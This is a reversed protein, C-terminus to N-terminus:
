NLTTGGLLYGILEVIDAKSNNYESEASLQPELIGLGGHNVSHGLTKRFDVDVEEGGFLLPSLTDRLAEEILSM